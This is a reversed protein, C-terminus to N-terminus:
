VPLLGVSGPQFCPGEQKGARGSTRRSFFTAGSQDGPQACSSPRPASSSREENAQVVTQRERQRLPQETARWCRADPSHTEPLPPEGHVEPHARAQWAFPDIEVALKAERKRQHGLSCQSQGSRSPLCSHFQTATDAQPSAQRPLASAGANRRAAPQDEVGARGRHQDAQLDPLGSGRRRSPRRRPRRTPADSSVLSSSHSDKKM